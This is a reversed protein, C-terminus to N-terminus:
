ATPVALKPDVEAPQLRRAGRATFTPLETEVLSGSPSTRLDIVLMAEM